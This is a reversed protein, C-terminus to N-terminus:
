TRNTRTKNKNLGTRTRVDEACVEDDWEVSEVDCSEDGVECREDMGPVFEIVM